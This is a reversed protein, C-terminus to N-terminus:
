YTSTIIMKLIPVLYNYVMFCSGMSASAKKKHAFMNSNPCTLKLFLFFHIIHCKPYYAQSSHSCLFMRKRELGRGGGRRLGGVGGSGFSVGGWGPM